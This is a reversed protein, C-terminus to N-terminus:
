KTLARAIAVGHSSAEPFTGGPLHQLRDALGVLPWVEENTKTSSPRDNGFRFTKWRTLEPLLFYGQFVFGDKQKFVRRRHRAATIFIADKLNWRGPDPRELRGPYLAVNKERVPPAAFLFSKARAVDIRSGV